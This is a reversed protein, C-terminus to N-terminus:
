TRDVQTLNHNEDPAEGEKLKKAEEGRYVEMDAGDDLLMLTCGSFAKINRFAKQFREKNEQPLKDKTKIVIVDGPQPRLIKMETIITKKCM